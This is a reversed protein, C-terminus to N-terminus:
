RSDPGRMWPKGSQEAVYAAIASLESETCGENEMELTVSRGSNLRVSYWPRKKAISDSRMGGPITELSEIQDFGHVVRGWPLQQEIGGPGIITWSRVYFVLSVGYVIM